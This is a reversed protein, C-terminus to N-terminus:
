FLYAVLPCIKRPKMVRLYILSAEILYWLFGEGEGMKKSSYVTDLAHELPPMTTRPILFLM